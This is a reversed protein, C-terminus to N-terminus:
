FMFIPNCKKLAPNPDEYVIVLYHLKINYLQM